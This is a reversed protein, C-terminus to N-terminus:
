PGLVTAASSIRQAPCDFIAADETWIICVLISPHGTICKIWINSNWYRRELNGNTFDKLCSVHHMM